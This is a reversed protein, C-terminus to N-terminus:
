NVFKHSIVGLIFLKRLSVIFNTTKRVLAYILLVYLNISKINKINYTSNTLKYIHHCFVVSGLSLVSNTLNSSLSIVINENFFLQKYFIYKTKKFLTLNFFVGKSIESFNLLCNSDPKSSPKSLSLVRSVLSFKNLNQLQTFRYIQKKLIYLKSWKYLYIYNIINSTKRKRTFYKKRNKIFKTIGINYKKFRLNKKFAKFNYLFLMESFPKKTNKKLISM